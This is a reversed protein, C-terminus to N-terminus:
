KFFKKWLLLLPAACFTSSYTGSVTGILLAFVFWKITNGGLLFLSLLMFIITMSNNISRTLTETVSKNVLNYFNEKPNKRVSERIRDFVVITDHVSFSLTTLVATVFLIDVSIGKFRGLLSYAGLLILTDHFMASIAAVGYMKDKFQWTVYIMIFGAALIIAFITKTILESSVSPGITIFSIENYEGAVEKIRTKFNEYRDQTVPRSEFKYIGNNTSVKPDIIGIEDLVEKIFGETDGEFRSNQITFRVETGGTFEVSSKFGYALISYISPILFVLSILFYLNKFRMFNIM